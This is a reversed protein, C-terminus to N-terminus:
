DSKRKGRQPRTEPVPDFGGECFPNCRLVRKVALYLGYLAGFRAIATMAYESCTPLFRCSPPLYPSISGRYFGIISILLKKM